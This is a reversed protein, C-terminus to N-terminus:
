RGALLRDEKWHRPVTQHHQRVAKWQSRNMQVPFPLNLRRSSGLTTDKPPMLVTAQGTTTPSRPHFRLTRLLLRRHHQRSHVSQNNLVRQQHSSRMPPRNSQDDTVLHLEIIVAVSRKQHNLKRVPRNIAYGHLYRRRRRTTSIAQPRARKTLPNRPVLRSFTRHRRHHYAAAHKKRWRTTRRVPCIRVPMLSWPFSRSRAERRKVANRIAAQPHHLLSIASSPAAAATAVQPPQRHWWRRNRKGRHRHPRM